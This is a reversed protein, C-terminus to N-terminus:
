YARVMYQYPLSQTDVELHHFGALGLERKLDSLPLKIDEPPGVPLPGEKFDVIIVNGGLRLGSRVKSLYKAVKDFHHVTNVILVKDCELDELKPKDAPSVRTEINNVKRLAKQMNIYNIFDVDIDVAIVQKCVNALPFSFYGTGAGIDAVVDNSDANLFDLVVDVKQWEARDPDEFAAVLEDFSRQHMHANAKNEEQPASSCAALFGLCILAYYKM